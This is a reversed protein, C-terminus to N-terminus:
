KRYFDACGGCFNTLKKCFKPHHPSIFTLDTTAKPLSPEVIQDSTPFDVPGEGKQIDAKNSIINFHGKEALIKIDTQTKRTRVRNYIFV